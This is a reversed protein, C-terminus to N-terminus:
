NKLQKKKYKPVVKFYYTSHLTCKSLFFHLCHAIKMKRHRYKKSNISISTWCNQKKNTMKVFNKCKILHLFLLLFVWSLLRCLISAMPRQFVELYLYACICLLYSTVAMIVNAYRPVWRQTNLTTCATTRWSSGDGRGPKWEAEQCSSSSSAPLWVFAATVSQSDVMLFSLM